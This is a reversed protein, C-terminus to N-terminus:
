PYSTSHVRRIDLKHPPSWTGMEEKTPFLPCTTCFPDDCKGLPGSRFLHEHSVSGQLRRRISGNSEPLTINSSLPADNKVNVPGSYFRKHGKDTDKEEALNSTGNVPIPGSVYRIKSPNAQLPASYYCCPDSTSPQEPNASLYRSLEILTHGPVRYRTSLM